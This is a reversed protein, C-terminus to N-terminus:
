RVIYLVVVSNWAGLCRDRMQLRGREWVEVRRGVRMCSNGEFRTVETSVLEVKRKRVLRM